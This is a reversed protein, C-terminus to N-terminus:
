RDSGKELYHAFAITGLFAVLSLVIAADLIVPQGTVIAYNAIVGVSLVLVLDLAVVRDPLSPGRIVRIVALLVAVSLVVFILDIVATM